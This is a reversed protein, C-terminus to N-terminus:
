GPALTAHADPPASVAELLADLNVPKVLHVDFGADKSRRREAAGSLGTLAILRLPESGQRQRARIALDHGSLGPLGIDIIAVTPHVEGIRDLAGHGDRAVFVEHGYDRLPDAVGDAVDYDDDVVLVRRHGDPPPGADVLDPGQEGGNPRGDGV